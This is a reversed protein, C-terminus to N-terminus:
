GRGVDAVDGGAHALDGDAVREEAVDVQEVAGLAHDREVGPHAATTGVDEGRRASRDGLDDEAVGVGVVATARRLETGRDEAMGVLDGVGLALPRLGVELSTAVCSSAAAAKPSAQARCPPKTRSSGNAM